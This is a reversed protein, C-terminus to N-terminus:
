IQAMPASPSCITSGPNNQLLIGHSSGTSSIAGDFQLSGGIVSFVGIAEITGTHTISGNYDVIASSNAFNFAMGTAGSLSGSGLNLTGSVLHLDVNTTGGTSTTSTFGSGSVTGGDLKLAQGTTNIAASDITLNGFLTSDSTIGAAGGITIGAITNQSGLTVTYGGSGTLSSNSSAAALTHGGVVLAVGTGILKVGGGLFINGTANGQVYFYDDHGQVTTAKTVTKFPKLSTGDGTTDSGASADVYWVQEAVTISVTATSTLDDANGAIGDLGKDRITYTFSDAGTFGAASIYSFSGDSNITYKGGQASTANTATDIAFTDGLYETDNDTLKGSVTKAPGSGTAGGGLLLTNGVATYSDNVALPSVNVSGTLTSGDLTDTLSVSTIASATTNTLTITTRLTDGPDAITDSDNDTIISTSRTLDISAM